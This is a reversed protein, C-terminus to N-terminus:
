KKALDQYSKIGKIFYAWVVSGNYVGSLQHLPIKAPESNRRAKWYKRNKYVEGHAKFIAKANGTQGDAFFKLASIWDLLIRIFLTSYLDPGALNKYLLALGNRFNLFTKRPNSKHLTGGGVHYVESHGCYYIKKGANKLRWCLDIEEMHAFFAPELGGHRHFDAARVFMGAGTAWFIERTDNYQGLDLELTDFMRGRCFPYGFLDIMGGGAGAYELYQPEHFSRIKPQCAAIEPDKVLLELIPDVWGPTVQVDSNLLVYFESDVQKLAENYGECFGLNRTHQILRIEPYSTKLFAVSDDTSANDAVIVQCGPSNAIVSPLFQELYSRGNWNLIVIGVSRSANYAM